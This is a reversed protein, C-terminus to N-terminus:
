SNCRVVILNYMCTYLSYKCPHSCSKWKKEEQRKEAKLYFLTFHTFWCIKFLKKKQRFFYFFSFSSFSSFSFLHNYFIGSSWSSSSSATGQKPTVNNDLSFPLSRPLLSFNGNKGVRNLIMSVLSTTELPPRHHHSFLFSSLRGFSKKEWTRNKGLAKWIKQKWMENFFLTGQLFFHLCTIYLSLLNGLTHTHMFCINHSTTPLGNDFNM